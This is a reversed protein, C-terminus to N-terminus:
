YDKKLSNLLSNKIEYSIIKTRKEIEESTWNDLNSIDFINKLFSYNSDELKYDVTFIYHDKEKNFYIDKKRSFIDNSVMSNLKKHVLIINGIKEIYKETITDKDIDKWHGDLKQWKDPNQPLIHEYEFSLKKLIDGRIQVKSELYIYIKLLQKFVSISEILEEGELLKLSKQYFEEEKIAKLYNNDSSLLTSIKSMFFAEFSNGRGGHLSVYIIFLILTDKISKQIKNETGWKIICALALVKVQVAKFESAIKFFYKIENCGSVKLESQDFEDLKKIFNNLDVKFKYIPNSGNNKLFRDFIESSNNKKVFKGEESTLYARMYEEKKIYFKDELYRLNEDVERLDSDPDDNTQNYIDNRIIDWDDLKKGKSNISKFIDHIDDDDRVEVQVLEIRTFFNIIFELIDDKLGKLNDDNEDDFYKDFKNRIANFVTIIPGKGKDLQEKIIGRATEVNFKELTSYINKLQKLKKASMKSENNELYKILDGIRDKLAFKVGLLFTTRQQGDIVDQKNEKNKRIYVTGCFMSKKSEYDSFVDIADNIFNEINTKKWVFNRQYLPIYFNVNDMYVKFNIRNALAM